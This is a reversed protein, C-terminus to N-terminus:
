PSTKFQIPFYSAVDAPIADTNWPLLLRDPQGHVYVKTPHNILFVEHEGVAINMHWVGRPILLQRAGEGSLMVKQTVGHTPSDVRADYLITLLEGSILTYRDDKEEHLGWGKTQGPRVTFAYSYVVPDHWHESPGAYIEFVRGRHDVHNIPSTVSVGDIVRALSRGAATVTADDRKAKDASADLTIKEM